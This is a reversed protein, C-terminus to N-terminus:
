SARKATDPSATTFTGPMEGLYGGPPAPIGIAMNREGTVLPPTGQIYGTFYRWFAQEDDFTLGNWEQNSRQRYSLAWLNPRPYPSIVHVRLQAARLYLIFAEPQGDMAVVKVKIRYRSHPAALRLGSYSTELVRKINTTSTLALALAVRAPEVLFNAAEWLTSWYWAIPIFRQGFGGPVADPWYVGEDRACYYLSEWLNAALAYASLAGRYARRGRHSTISKFAVFCVVFAVAVIGQWLPPSVTTWWEGVAICLLALGIVSWRGWGGQRVPFEPAALSSALATSSTSRSNIRGSYVGGSVGDPGFIGTTGGVGGKQITTVTGARVIGSVKEIRDQQNCRPCANMYSSM